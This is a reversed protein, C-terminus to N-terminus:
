IWTTDVFNGVAQWTKLKSKVIVSAHEMIGVM